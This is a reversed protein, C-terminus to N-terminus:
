KNFIRKIKASRGHDRKVEIFENTELLALDRKLKSRDIGAKLRIWKPISVWPDSTVTWQRLLLTWTKYAKDPIGVIDDVSYYFYYRTEKGTGKSFRGNPDITYTELKSM